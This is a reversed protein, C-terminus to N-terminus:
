NRVAEQLLKYTGGEETIKIKLGSLDALIEGQRNWIREISKIKDDKKKKKPKEGLFRKLNSTALMSRFLDIERLLEQKEEENIERKEEEALKAANEAAELKAELIEDANNSDLIPIEEEERPKPEEKENIKVGKLAEAMTGLGSDGAKSMTDDKSTTMRFGTSRGKVKKIIKEVALLMERVENLDGYSDNILREASYWNDELDDIHVSYVGGHLIDNVDPSLKNRLDKVQPLLEERQDIIRRKEELNRKIYNLDKIAESPHDDIISEARAIENNIDDEDWNKLRARIERFIDEVDILLGRAEIEIEDKKKERKKAKKRYEIGELFKVQFKKAEEKSKGYEVVLSNRWDLKFFPYAFLPESTVPDEGFQISEPLEPIESLPNFNRIPEFGTEGQSPKFNSWQENILYQRSKEKIDELDTGSFEAYSSGEAVVDMILERDSPLKPSENIKLVEEFSMEVRASLQGRHNQKYKVEYSKEGVKISDPNDREIKEREEEPIIKEPDLQLDGINIKGESVARNLDDVSSIDAKKFIAAYHEKLIEQSRFGEM